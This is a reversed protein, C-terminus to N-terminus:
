VKADHGEVIRFTQKCGIEMGTIDIITSSILDYLYESIELRNWWYRDKTNAVIKFDDVDCIPIIVTFPVAGREM